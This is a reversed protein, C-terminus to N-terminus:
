EPNISFCPFIGTTGAEYDEALEPIQDFSYIKREDIEPMWDNTEAYAVARVGQQYRAYHTYIHQHREICEKARLHWIEMGEKWGATAIVGERSLARLTARYVPSGVYDLFIQVMEGHTRLKVENIFAEENKRYEERFVPDSKYRADDYRIEGFSRRDVAIVGLRQIKELHRPNGSLMVARCGHRRALDLEAYTVGGGWGWVNPSAYEQEPVLLRFVGYALEWNSWATVYRLSFASWQPLSHRTREPLPIVQRDTLVMEQALCGMTGPADYAMIKIAYGWRDEVGTCFIVAYQGPEVTKVKSGVELIKVVGANGIVVKAEGRQVCIDVPRRNLAHGMNGEWTGYLPRARVDHEGLPPLEITERVLKTRVPRGGDGACLLWADVNRTM